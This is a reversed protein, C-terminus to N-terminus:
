DQRGGILRAIDRLNQAWDEALPDAMVTQGGIERAIMEADRTSIQPQVMVFRIEKERAAEIVKKMQRAKPAKGDVEIPIQRLGYADAFYGWSPHYVMFDTGPTLLNRLEIDLDVIEAIFAAYRSEYFGQNDPDISALGDLISRAQLMVLPPSLWIHPDADGHAHGEQDHHHHEEPSPRKEIHRATEVFMVGPNAARIKGLWAKEFTVGVTFYAKAGSLAKMQGPLPEYTHPSAGSPVMIHVHVHEGGIKEVFYKQPAISVFVNLEQSYGQIAFFLMGAVALAISRFIKTGM